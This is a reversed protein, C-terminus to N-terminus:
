GSFRRGLTDRPVFVVRGRMPRTAAYSYFLGGPELQALVPEGGPARVVAEAGDFLRILRISRGALLVAIGGDLDVLRERAGIVRSAIRRQMRIDFASLRGPTAVAVLGHDVASARTKGPVRFSAVVVGGNARVVDVSERDHKRVVLGGGVAQLAPANTTAAVTRVRRGDLRHIVGRGDDRWSEFVLLSGDGYPAGAVEVDEVEFVSRPAPERETASVVWTAYHNTEMWNTWSVREGALGLGSIGQEEGGRESASCAGEAFRVLRGRSPTWLEICLASASYAIAVRPGDAAIFDIASRTRLM